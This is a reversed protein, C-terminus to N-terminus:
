PYDCAWGVFQVPAIARGSPLGIEGESREELGEEMQKVMVVERWATPDCVFLHYLRGLQCAQSIRLDTFNGPHSWPRPVPVPPQRVRCPLSKGVILLLKIHTAEMTANSIHRSLAALRGIGHTRYFRLTDHRILEWAGRDVPDVVGATWAWLVVVEATNLCQLEELRRIAAIMKAPTRLLDSRSNTAADFMCKLASRRGEKTSTIKECSTFNSPHLHNCWLDSSAFEILVVTVMMPDYNAEDVSRGEPVPQFPDGVARLLKDLNKTLVNEVNSFSESMFMFRHFVMLALSRSQLPHAPVLTTTLVPFTTTGFILSGSSTSLIRLVILGPYPPTETAYFKECLVLFDVLAPIWTYHIVGIPFLDSDSSDFWKGLLRVVESAMRYRDDEPYRSNLISAILLIGPEAGGVVRFPNLYISAALTTAIGNPNAKGERVSIQLQQFFHNIAAQLADSGNSSRVAHPSHTVVYKNNPAYLDRIDIRLGLSIAMILFCNTKLITPTRDGDVTFNECILGIGRFDLVRTHERVRRWRWITQLVVRSLWLKHTTPFHSPISQTIDYEEVSTPAEAIFKLIAVVLLFTSESSPGGEVHDRIRECIERLAQDWPEMSLHVSLVSALAMGISSAHEAKDPVVLGDLLCDFFLDALIHPSLAGAIELYWIMDAAFRVTSFIVDTDTTSDLIWSVCRADARCIERDISIDEFIRAHPAVIVALPIYEAGEAVASVCGLTALMNYVESRLRGLIRGIIKTSPLPEVPSRPSHTSIIDNRTLYRIITRTLISPPTQYPCNYYLAATLTLFVYSTVGFLTVAVVVGAVTRSITWLYKSLACGLLLLALQLMVPLSEIALRFHWKEFGDLKRQRDRSKDAASGGRNRLYRNVWQKGLMALFAAFLSTTLSAYLLSQVTIIAPPPGTWITSNPDAGPFLSNNMSHILIRM